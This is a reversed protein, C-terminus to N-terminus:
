PNRGTFQIEMSVCCIFQPLNRLELEQKSAEQPGFFQTVHLILTEKVQVLSDIFSHVPTRTNTLISSIKINSKNTKPSSKEFVKPLHGELITLNEKLKLTSVDLSDHKNM